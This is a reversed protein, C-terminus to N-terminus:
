NSLHMLQVCIAEVKKQEKRTEIAVALAADASTSGSPTAMM